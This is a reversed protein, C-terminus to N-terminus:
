AVDEEAYASEIRKNTHSCFLQGDEWNIDVAAVQWQSDGRPDNMEEFIRQKEQQAAEFSMPNGDKMVFFLPYGGPWAYPGNKFIQNVDYATM